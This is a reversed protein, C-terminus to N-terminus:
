KVSKMAIDYWKDLDPKVRKVIMVDIKKVGLKKMALARHRGEHEVWNDTDYELVPMDFKKGSDIQDAYKDVKNMDVGALPNSSSSNKTKQMYEDPTMQVIDYIFGKYYQHYEPKKMIDDYLSMGTTKTNFKYKESEQFFPKYRKM